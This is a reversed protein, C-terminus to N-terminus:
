PSPATLHRLVYHSTGIPIWGALSYHPAPVEAIIERTGAAALLAYVQEKREESLNWFVPADKVKALVRVRAVEPFYFTALDGIEAVATGPPVNLGNLALGADVDSNHLVAPWGGLRLRDHLGNLSQALLAIWTIVFLGLGIRRAIRVYEPGLDALISGVGVIMAVLVFAMVHRYVSYVLGYFALGALSPLLLTWPLGLFTKRFSPALALLSVFAVLSLTFGADSGPMGAGSGDTLADAFLIGNLFIVVAQRVPRVAPRLGEMWYSPDYWNPFTGRVDGKFGYVIPDESLIQFPHKLPTGDLSTQLAEGAVYKGQGMFWVYNIKGTEGFTFRKEALSLPLWHLASFFLFLAALAATPVLAGARKRREWYFSFIFVFAVPGLIAKALYGLALVFGFALVALPTAERRFFGALCGASLLFFVAVLLDPLLGFGLLGCVAALTTAFGFLFLATSKGPSWAGLFRVEFCRVLRAHFFLYAALVFVFNFYTVAASVPLEQTLSPHAIRFALAVLAPLLPSWYGNVGDWWSGQLYVHAIDLYSMQDSSVVTVNLVVLFLGLACGAAFAGWKLFPHVTSREFRM